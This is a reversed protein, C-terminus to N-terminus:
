KMGSIGLRFAENRGIESSNTTTEEAKVPWALLTKKVAPSADRRVVWRAFVIPKNFLKHWLHALDYCFSLQKEGSSWPTTV